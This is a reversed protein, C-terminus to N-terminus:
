QSDYRQNRNNFTKRNYIWLNLKLKLQYYGEYIGPM